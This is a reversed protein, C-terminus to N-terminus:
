NSVGLARMTEMTVGGTALNNDRQYRELASMTAPGLAGDPTGTNYGAKNLAAQVARITNENVEHSCLVQEWRMQADAVKDFVKVEAYEAPIEVEREEAEKVLKRVRVTKYEAEFPVREVTAEQDLEQVEVTEFKAEIEKNEVRAPEQVVQRTISEKQVPVETLRLAEGVSQFTRSGGQNHATLYAPRAEIEDSVETYKPPVVTKEVTVPEIEIEKTVTKYTAPVIRLEEGAPKVMVQEETWEYEAPVIEFTKAAEKIEVQESRPEFQAPVVVLAQCQGATVQPVPLSQVNSGIAPQDAAVAAADQQAAEQAQAMGAVAAAILLTSIKKNM